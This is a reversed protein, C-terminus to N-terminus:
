SLEVDDDASGDAVEEYPRRFGGPDASEDIELREGQRVETVDEVVKLELAKKAEELEEMEKVRMMEKKKREEEEKAEKAKDRPDGTKQWLKLAGSRFADWYRKVEATVDVKATGERWVDMTEIVDEWELMRASRGDDGAFHVVFHGKRAQFWKLSAPQAGAAFDVISNNPAPYANFWYWPVWAAKESWGPESLLRSMATQEASPLRDNPRYYRYGLITSFLKASWENVKFLFLGANLDGADRNVILNVNAYEPTDPPLFSSLPRCPDMIIADRDIWLIWELRTHNPKLLENQVLHLLFAIKNWAGDALDECLIHASTDHVAAHLMHSQVARQYAEVKKGTTISALAVRRTEKTEFPAHKACSEKRIVAQGKWHKDFDPMCQTHGYSIHTKSLDLSPTPTSSASSASTSSVLPASTASLSLTLTSSPSPTFVDSAALTASISAQADQPQAKQVDQFWTSKSIDSQQLAVPEPELWYVQYLICLSLIGLLIKPVLSAARHM